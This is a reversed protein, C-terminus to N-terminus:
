APPQTQQLQLKLGVHTAEFGLQQYFRLADPRQRDTTLQVLTCGRQRACAIAHEVFQRGLGHGRWAAAVRVGEIQARWSGLRTLSPIFTLQLMAALQGQQECVLLANNPDDRMAEFAATYRPDLPLGPAERTRGLADDALLAVLTPLDAATATRFRPLSM